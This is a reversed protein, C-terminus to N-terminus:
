MMRDIRQKDDRSLKTADYRVGKRVLIQLFRPNLTTDEKLMSLIIHTMDTDSPLLNLMVRFAEYFCGGVLYTLVKSIASPSLSPYIRKIIEINGICAKELFDDWLDSAAEEDKITLRYLDNGNSGRLYYFSGDPTIIKVTEGEKLYEGVVLFTLEGPDRGFIFDSLIEISDDDLSQSVKQKDGNSLLGYFRYFMSRHAGNAASEVIMRYKYSENPKIDGIDILYDIIDQRGVKAATKHANVLDGSISPYALKFCDISTKKLANQHLLIGRSKRVSILYKIIETQNYEMASSLAYDIDYNQDELTKTLDVIMTLAKLQGYRAASAMHSRLFDNIGIIRRNLHRADYIHGGSIFGVSIAADVRDSPENNRYLQIEDILGLMDHYAACSLSWLLFDRTYEKNGQNMEKFSNWVQILREKSTYPFTDSLYYRWWELTDEKKTLILTLTFAEIDAYRAFRSHDFFSFSIPTMHRESYEYCLERFSNSHLPAKDLGLRERLTNLVVSQDLASRLQDSGGNYLFFLSMIDPEEQTLALIVLAFANEPTDM